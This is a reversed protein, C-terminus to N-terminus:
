IYRYLSDRPLDYTTPTLSAVHVRGGTVDPHERLLSSFAEMERHATIEEKLLSGRGGNFDHLYGDFGCLFIRSAGMCMAIGIAYMGVADFPIVCEEDTVSFVGDAVRYPYHWSELGELEGMLDAEVGSMGLVVRHRVETLDHSFKHLRRHNLFVPYHHHGTSIAGQYNCEIVVPDHEGIFRNIDDSRERVSPGSALVLFERSEEVVPIGPRYGSLETVPVVAGSMSRDRLAVSLLEPSFAAAQGTDHVAELVQIVEMPSYRVSVGLLRQAYTPHVNYVGSLMYPLHVGWRHRDLLEAFDHEVINFLASPKFREDGECLGLFLLLQETRLNGAGRGMGLISGDVYDAGESIAALTNALALGMNDHPHFGVRGVFNEKMAQVLARTADPSLGGFSDALYFVDVFDPNMLRAAGAVEAPSLLSGRMLNISIEYGLSKVTAAVELVGDLSSRSATMRVLDVHSELAPAFLARVGAHDVSGNPLIFDKGDIMVAARLPRDAFLKEVLADRCFLYKGAYGETSNSRFGIEVIDVGAAAVADLYRAVTGDEFDWDTYYGGDRLTCDLVTVETM